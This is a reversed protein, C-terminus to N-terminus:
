GLFGVLLLLYANSFNRPPKREFAEFTRTFLLEFIRLEKTSFEMQPRKFCFDGWALFGVETKSM